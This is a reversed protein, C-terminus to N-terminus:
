PGIGRRGVVVISMSKSDMEISSVTVGVAVGGGSTPVSNVVELAPGQRTACV